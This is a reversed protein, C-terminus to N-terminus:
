SVQLKFSREMMLESRNARDSAVTMGRLVDFIM